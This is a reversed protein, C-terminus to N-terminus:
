YKRAHMEFHTRTKQENFCNGYYCLSNIRRNNKCVQIGVFYSIYVVVFTVYM